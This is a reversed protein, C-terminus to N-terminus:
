ILCNFDRKASTGLNRNTGTQLFVQIELVLRYKGPKEIKFLQSPSPLELPRSWSTTYIARSKGNQLHEVGWGGNSLPWPEPVMGGTNYIQRVSKRDWHLDTKLKFSEGLVTKPLPINNSNYLTFQGLYEDKPVYIRAAKNPFRFTLSISQETTNTPLFPHHM